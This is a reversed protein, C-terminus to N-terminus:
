APQQPQQQPQQQQQMQQAEIGAVKADYGMAAKVMDAEVKKDMNASATMAQMEAVQKNADTVQKTNVAGMIKDFLAQGEAAAKNQQVKWSVYAKMESWTTMSEIKIVDEMDVQGTQMLIRLDASLQQKQKEDVYDEFDVRVLVTEFLSKKMEKMFFIGREGIVSETQAIDGRAVSLKMQELSYQMVGAMFQGHAYYIYQMNNLSADMTAQQTDYGVYGKQTGLGIDSLNLIDKMMTEKQKWLNLYSMAIAATSMDIRYMPPKNNSPNDLDMDQTEVLIRTKKIEELAEFPTTVNQFTEGRLGMVIGMDFGVMERFKYDLMSLDNQTQRVQDVISKNYGQYTQPQVYFLPCFLQSKDMPNRIEDCIGEDVIWKNAILTATRWVEVMEGKAKSSPSVYFVKNNPDNRDPLERTDVLSKWYAKCVSLNKIRDQDMKYWGFGWGGYQVQNAIIFEGDCNAIKNMVDKGYKKVLQKGWKAQIHNPTFPRLWGRLVDNHGFDDDELSQAIQCWPPVIDWSPWGGRKVIDIMARGGGIVHMISKFGTTTYNNKVRIQNLLDTGYIEATTTPNQFFYKEAQEKSYVDQGGTPEFRIGLEQALEKFFPAQDYKLYALKLRKNLKSQAKQDYSKVVAKSSRLIKLYQNALHSTFRWVEKGPQWPAGIEGGAQIQTLFGMDRNIQDGQIYTFNEWARDAEGMLWWPNNALQDSGTANNRKNFFSAVYRVNDAYWNDLPNKDRATSYHKIIEDMSLDQRPQYGSFIYTNDNM